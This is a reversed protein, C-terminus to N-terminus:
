HERGIRALKKYLTRRRSLAITARRPLSPNRSAEVGAMVAKMTLKPAVFANTSRTEPGIASRYPQLGASPNPHSNSIGTGNRM